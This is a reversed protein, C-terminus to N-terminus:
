QAPSFDIPSKVRPQIDFEFGFLSDSGTELKKAGDTLVVVMCRDHAALTRNGGVIWEQYGYSRLPRGCLCCRQPQIASM